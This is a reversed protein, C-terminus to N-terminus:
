IMGDRRAGFLIETEQPRRERGDDWNDGDLEFHDQNGTENVSYAFETV